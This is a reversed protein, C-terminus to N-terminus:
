SKYFLHRQSFSEASIIFENMVNNMKKSILKEILPVFKLFGNIQLSVQIIIKTGMDDSEYNEIFSTGSLPGSLIFVGHLNPPLVIHKTKVDLTKGLFSIKELVIKESTNDEIVDMSKFYNPMVNHFNDVNTSIEFLDNRDLM